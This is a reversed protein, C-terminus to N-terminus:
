TYKYTCKYNYFGSIVVGARGLIHPDQEGSTCLGEARQAHEGLRVSPERFTQPTRRSM